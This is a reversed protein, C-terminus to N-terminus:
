ACVQGFTDIDTPLRESFGLGVLDDDPNWLGSSFQHKFALFDKTRKISLDYRLESFPQYHSQGRTTNGLYPNASWAKRSDFDCTYFAYDM